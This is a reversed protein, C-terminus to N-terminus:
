NNKLRYVIISNPIQPTIDRYLYGGGLVIGHKHITVGSGISTANAYVSLLLDGTLSNWANWYGSLSTTFMVGGGSAVAGKPDSFAPFLPSFNPDPNEWVRVAQDSIGMVTGYYMVTGDMMVHKFQQSNASTALLIKHETDYASGWQFGGTNGGTGIHSSYLQVGTTRDWIYYKGNKQGCSIVDTKSGNSNKRKWLIPGQGFDSDAGIPQPLNPNVGTSFFALTWADYDVTKARWNIELTDLDLSVMTDFMNYAPNHLLNCQHYGASVCPPMANAVDGEIQQDIINMSANCDARVQLLCASMDPSVKYNDGTGIYVSNRKIDIAPSSGWVANGPFLLTGNPFKNTAQSPSVFKTPDSTYIKQIIMGNHANIRLFSGVFTCCPYTGSYANTTEDSSVGVYISSKKKVYVGSSTIQAVPHSDVVPGLWALKGSDRYLAFFRCHTYTKLGYVIIPINGYYDDVFIGTTRSYARQGPPLTLKLEDQLFTKWKISCDRLDFKYIFGSSVALYAYEGEINAQSQVLGRTSTGPVNPVPFRCTESLKHVNQPNIKTCPQHHTNENDIGWHDARATCSNSDDNDALSYPICSVGLLIVVIAQLYKFFIMTGM